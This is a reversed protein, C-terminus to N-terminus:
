IFDFLGVFMTITAMIHGMFHMVLHERCCWSITSYLNSLYFFLVMVAVCGLFWWVARSLLFRRVITYVVMAVITTKAAIADIKHIVSGKIPESWFAISFLFNMFVMSFLGTLLKSHKSAVLYYLIPLLFLHSTIYLLRPTIYDMMRHYIEISQYLGIVFHQWM